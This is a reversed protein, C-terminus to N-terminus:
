PSNNRFRFQTQITSGQFVLFLLPSTLFFFNNEKEQLNGEEGLRGGRM